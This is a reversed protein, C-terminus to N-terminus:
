FRLTVNSFCGRNLKQSVKQKSINTSALVYLVFNENFINFKIKHLINNLLIVKFQKDILMINAHVGLHIKNLFKNITSNKLAHM